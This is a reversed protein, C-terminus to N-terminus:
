RESRGREPGYYVETRLVYKTGTMVTAGRHLLGHPFLVARGVEPEVRLGAHPFETQGGEFDGNLYILLTLASRQMDEADYPHDVHFSSSHGTGYRLFHMRPKLGFLEGQELSEPLLEAVRGYLRLALRPDWILALADQDVGADSSDPGSTILPTNDNIAASPLWPGRDVLEILRKSEDPNLLDEVLAIQDTPKKSDPDFM